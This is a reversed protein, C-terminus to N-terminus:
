LDKRRSGDVNAARRGERAKAARERGHRGGERETATITALWISFDQRQRADRSGIQASVAIEVSFAGGVECLCEVARVLSWQWLRGEILYAAAACRGVQIGLACGFLIGGGGGEIIYYIICIM